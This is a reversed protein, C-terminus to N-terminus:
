GNNQPRADLTLTFDLYEGDRYVNIVVTQGSVYSQLATVLEQYSAVIKGDIGIIVDGHRIGAKEACFGEEASEVYAGHPLKEDVYSSDRVMVGLYARHAAYGLTQLDDLMNRVTNIPIAFGLGEMSAGTSTEGSYKATVIGIVAGTCDFLPGGSNGSNIAVDTQLMGIATGNSPIAREKASLHGVTMSFTLEGLPNGITSVEEGIMAANSDGIVVPTLGAADIKLLAVDCIENEFGVLEAPYEMRNYLTVTISKTNEVVHYNTLIYGDESIIFGTGSSAIPTEQGFVNTTSDSVIGVVSPAYTQYLVTPPLYDADQTQTIIRGSLDGLTPAEVTTKAPAPDKRLFFHYVTMGLAFGLLLALIIVPAVWWLSRGKKQKVKKEPVAERAAPRGTGAYNPTSGFPNGVSGPVAPRMPMPTRFPAGGAEAPGGAFQPGAQAPKEVTEAAEERIEATEECPAEAEECTEAAPTGESGEADPVAEAEAEPAANKVAPADEAEESWPIPPSFPGPTGGFPNGVSGPVAAREFLPQPEEAPEPGASPAEEAPTEAEVAPVEEAPTEAEVPVENVTEETPAETEVAPVEEAPTETEVPVENVAEEAAQEPAAPAEQLIDNENKQENM